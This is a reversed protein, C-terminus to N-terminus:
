KVQNFVFHVLMQSAAVVVLGIIAYILSNKASAVKNTDGSSTVFKLGAIIVMIVAVIGVIVSLLNVAVGLANSVQAGSDGCGNGALGIGACVDNKATDAVVSSTAYPLAYANAVPAMGVVAISAVLAGLLLGMRKM